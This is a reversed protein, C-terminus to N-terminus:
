DHPLLVSDDRNAPSDKGAAQSTYINDRNLGCLVTLQYTVHGDAYLVNQGEREHNKSNSDIKPGNPNRDAALAFDGPMRPTWKYGSLVAANDPYPNAISYGLNRRYDTFNSRSPFDAKDAEFSTVDNYPCIFIVPPLKQVKM